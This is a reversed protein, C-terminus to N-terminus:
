HGRELVLGPEGLYEHAGGGRVGGGHQDVEKFLPGVEHRVLHEGPQVGQEGQEADVLDVLPAARVKVMGDLVHKAVEGAGM